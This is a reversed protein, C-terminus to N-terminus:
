DGVVGVDSAGNLSVRAPVNQTGITADTLDAVISIQSAIVANVAEESGRIQIQRVQSVLEVTCGEPANIWQINDM